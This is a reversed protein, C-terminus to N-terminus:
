TVLMYILSAVGFVAFGSYAAALAVAVRPRRDVLRGGERLARKTATFMCKVGYRGDIYNRLDAIMEGASQFRQARDKAMGRDCFHGLEPPLRGHGGNDFNIIDVKESQVADILGYLSDAHHALYHRLALFEHFTVAASYLDSRADLEDCAAQEPSMYAPTGILGPTAGADKGEGTITEGPEREGIRKAIGWDMLRIEGHAGIMINEPKIDRHVIGREHAYELAQLVAIMLEVRREFTWFALAGADGTALLDIVDALTRGEVYKMVFFYRGDDDVGVDHIPVVHPHDLSGVIRIESVFRAIGMAHSAEPLLRKIAVPRGIDIDEAREVVGMGGTGLVGLPRYRDAPEHLLEIEGSPATQVKPLVSISRPRPGPAVTAKTFRGPEALTPANVQMAAQTEMRSWGQTARLSGNSM